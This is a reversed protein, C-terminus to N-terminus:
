LQDRQENSVRETLQPHYTNLLNESIVPERLWLDVCDRPDGIRVFTKATAILLTKNPSCWTIKSEYGM